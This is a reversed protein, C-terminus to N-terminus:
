GAADTLTSNEVDVHTVDNEQICGDPYGQGYWTKGANRVTFNLISVNSTGIQIVSEMGKGDIITSDRDEGVLTISKYINVNEYYTGSDVRITQGNVTENADIAEQIATYNLGTNLNHVPLSSSAKVETQSFRVYSLCSLLLLLCFLQPLKGKM